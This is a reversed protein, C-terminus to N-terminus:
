STRRSSLSEAKQIARQWSERPYAGGQSELRRLHSRYRTVLDAYFTPFSASADSFAEGEWRYVRPVDDDGSGYGVYRTGAVVEPEQDGNLDRLSFRDAQPAVNRWRAGSWRYIGPLAGAMASESWAFYTIAQRGGIRVLLLPPQLHEVRELGNEVEEVNCRPRSFEHGLGPSTWALVWRVGELRFMVLRAREDNPVDPPRDVPFYCGVVYDGRGDGDLDGHLIARRFRADEVLGDRVRYATPVRPIITGLPLQALFQRLTAPDPERYQRAPDIPIEGATIAHGRLAPLLLLALTIGASIARRRM